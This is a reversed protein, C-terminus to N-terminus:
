QKVYLSNADGTLSSVDNESQVYFSRDYLPPIYLAIAAQQRSYTHTYQGYKDPYYTIGLEHLVEEPVYAWLLFLATTGSLVSCLILVCSCEPWASSSTQVILHM